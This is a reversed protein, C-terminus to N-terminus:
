QQARRLSPVLFPALLRNAAFRDVLFPALFRNAAFRDVSSATRALPWTDNEQRRVHKRKSRAPGASAAQAKDSPSPQKLEKEITQVIEQFSTERYGVSVLKIKGDKGVIFNRPIYKEAYKGYIERKPDPAMSLSFNKEKAFKEIEETTHERGIVILKFDKRDAYKKMIEKELHPLEALCPGCWTAFFNVMVVTGQQKGLSFEEGGIPKCTFDPAKDGVKVLTSKVEDDAVPAQQVRAIPFVIVFALGCIAILRISRM